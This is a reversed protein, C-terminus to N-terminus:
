LTYFRLAEGETIEDYEKEDKEQQDIAANKSKAPRCESAATIINALMERQREPTLEYNSM